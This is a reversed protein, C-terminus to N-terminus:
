RKIGATLGTKPDNNKNKAADIQAQQQQNQQELVETITELAIKREYPTMEETDGYTVGGKTLYGIMVQEKIISKYKVQPYYQGDSTM